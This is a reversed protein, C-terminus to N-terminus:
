PKNPHKANARLVNLADSVDADHQADNSGDTKNTSSRRWFLLLLLGIVLVGILPMTWLVFTARNVPPRYLVFDGYRAVLYERIQDDSRGSELLQVLERKLDKALEANSDALNQNQCVLCRFEESLSQYRLLTAPDDPLHFSDIALVPSAMLLPLLFVALVHRLRKVM